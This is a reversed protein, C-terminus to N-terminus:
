RVPQLSQVCGQLAEHILALDGPHDCYQGPTALSEMGLAIPLGIERGALRHLSIRQEPQPRNGFYDRRDGRQDTILMAMKHEILRNRVEDGPEFIRGDINAHIAILWAQDRLFSRDRNPVQQRM